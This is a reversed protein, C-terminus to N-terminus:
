CLRREIQRMCQSWSSSICLDKSILLLTKRNMSLRWPKIVACQSWSGRFRLAPSWGPLILTDKSRRVQRLQLEASRNM